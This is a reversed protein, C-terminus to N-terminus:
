TARVALLRHSRLGAFRALRPYATPTRRGLRRALWPNLTITRRQLVQGTQETLQRWPPTVTSQNGPNAVRVDWVLLVGGPALVRAGEQAARLAAAPSELSSLLLLMTVATFSAHAFPLRLANEVRLDVGPLSAAAHELRAADRDIGALSSPASGLEVLTRLWWGTGCGVDLLPGAPAQDLLTRLADVLDARIAQNGPNALSWARQKRSQQDTHSTGDCILPRDRVIFVQWILDDHGGGTLEALPREVVLLSDHM